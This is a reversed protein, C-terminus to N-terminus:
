VDEDFDFDYHDELDFDKDVSRIWLVIMAVIGGFLTLACVTKIAKKM